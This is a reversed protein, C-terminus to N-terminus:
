LSKLYEVLDNKESETLRLQFVNNYHNVVEYLDKFRGDHYFGGKQHSWLGKLPATRYRREPSRDAQFSDIGIEEPKHM